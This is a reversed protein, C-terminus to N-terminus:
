AGTEEGGDGGGTSSTYKLPLTMLVKATALYGDYCLFIERMKATEGGGIDSLNLDIDRRDDQAKDSLIFREYLADGESGNIEAKSQTDDGGAASVKATTRTASDSSVVRNRNIRFLEEIDDPYLHKPPGFKLLATEDFLNEESQSVTACIGAWSPNGSDVINIRRGFFAGVDLGVARLSGEYQLDSVADFIAKALGNPRPEAFQLTRWVTYTGSAASTSLINAAVNKTVVTGDGKTYKVKAKAVIPLTKFNMAAVISGSLLERSYTSDSRSSEVVAMSKEDALAPVHKRWWQVSNIDITGCEIKYSTSSSKEGDLDVTMVITKRANSSISDPYKEESIGLFVNDNIKHESEYKISVGDVLLDNRPSVTASLVNGAATSLTKTELTGRRRVNLVPLGDASYDFYVSSNPAWKLTRALAQACSLDRAEDALMASDVDVTGVAFEAGCSIAFRLIDLVQEAVSIKEGASNQGLTIKSRLVDEINGDVSRKWSQQYVISELDRWASKAVIDVHAKEASNEVPIKEIRGAFKRTRADFVEIYDGVAPVVACDPALRLRLEDAASLRRVIKAACVTLRGDAPTESNIKFIPPM